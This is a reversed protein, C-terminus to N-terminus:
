TPIDDTSRLYDFDMTICNEVEEFVKIAKKGELLFYYGALLCGSTGFLLLNTLMFPWIDKLFIIFKIQGFVKTIKLFLNM